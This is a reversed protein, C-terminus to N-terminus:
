SGGTRRLALMATDDADPGVWAVLEFVEDCVEDIETLHGPFATALRRLGDEISENRREVLGDTYLLLVEGVDLMAQLPRATLEPLFGLMPARHADDGIWRVRAGSASAVLPPLHGCRWVTCEGTATDVEVYVMTMTTRLEELALRNLVRLSEEPSVSSQVLARFSHRFQGMHAAAALGHGCVDGVALGVRSGGLDIVDYWDGGVDLGDRGPHYRVCVDAGPVTVDGSPLLERQFAMAALRRHEHHQANEVAVGTSAGISRALRVDDDTFHGAEPHLFVMTGLRRPDEDGRIPVILASRMAAV